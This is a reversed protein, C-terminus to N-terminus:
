YKCQDQSYFQAIQFRHTCYPVFDSNEKAYIERLNRTKNVIEIRKALNLYADSRLTKALQAIEVRNQAFYAKDLKGVSFKM